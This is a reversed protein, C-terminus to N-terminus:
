DGLPRSGLPDIAAALHGYRRISQALNVAGVILASPVDLSRSEPGGSRLREVTADSPTWAAFVARTAPDVSGPDRRFREYLELAYGANVGQIDWQDPSM